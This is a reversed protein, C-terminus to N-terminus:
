PGHICDYLEKVRIDEASTGNIEIQYIDPLPLAGSSPSGPLPTADQKLRTVKYHTNGHTTEYSRSQINNISRSTTPLTTPLWTINGKTTELILERLVDDLAV